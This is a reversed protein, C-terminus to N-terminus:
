SQTAAPREAGSFAGYVVLATFGGCMDAVADWKDAFRSPVLTQSWEDAIAYLAILAICGVFRLGRNAQVSWALLLGLTFYAGATGRAPVHTAVFLLMWYGALLLYAWHARQIM